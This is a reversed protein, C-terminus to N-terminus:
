RTTPRRLPFTWYQPLPTPGTRVPIQFTDLIWQLSPENDGFLGRLGLARLTVDLTPHDPDNSSIRLSAGVPGPTSASFTVGVRATAGPAVTAPLSPRTLTFRAAATGSLTLGTLTLMQDGANRVTLSQAATAAGGQVDNFILRSRDVAIDAALLQRAELTEIAPPVPPRFPPRVSRPMTVFEKRTSFRTIEALGL